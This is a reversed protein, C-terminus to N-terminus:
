APAALPSKETTASETRRVTTDSLGHMLIFCGPIRPSGAVAYRHQYVSPSVGVLTKFRSSFSGLSEFGVLRCIETVTLNTNRLLDQAREVRRESLYTGPTLGYTETFCRLFHYKSLQAARALTALDLPDAYGRDVLDRARRLHM